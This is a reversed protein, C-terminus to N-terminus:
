SIDKNRYDMNPYELIVNKTPLNTIFMNVMVRNPFLKTELGYISIKLIVNKTSLNIRFM